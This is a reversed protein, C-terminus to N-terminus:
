DIIGGHINKLLSTIGDVFDMRPSWGLVEKAKMIDARTEYIEGQRETNTYLVEPHQNAIKCAMEVVEEVSYSQGSGLNFVEYDGVNTFISSIIAQVIDSVHIFDRKPKANELVVKKNFIQNLIIPIIFNSRQGPGYVNFPRFVVVPLGFDRNYGECIKECILKTQAYPNHPTLSHNEDTPLYEPQGYLYSSFFIVRSKNQRAFECVNLTSLLNNHYFDKPDKFSYPVSSKAALHIIVDVKDFNDVHIDNLLNIGNAYDLQVIQCEFSSLSRVLEKGIFGHSGTIAIVM